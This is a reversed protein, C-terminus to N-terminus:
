FDGGSRRIAAAAAAKASKGSDFWDALPCDDLDLLSLGTKRSVFADVAQAWEDFNFTKNTIPKGTLIATRVSIKQTM